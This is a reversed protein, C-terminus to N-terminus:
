AEDSEVNQNLNIHEDDVLNQFQESHEKVPNLEELHYPSPM